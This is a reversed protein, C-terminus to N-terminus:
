QGTESSIRPTDESTERTENTGSLLATLPNLRRKHNLDHIISRLAAPRWITLALRKEIRTCRCKLRFVHGSSGVRPIM